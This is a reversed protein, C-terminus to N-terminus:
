IPLTFVCPLCVCARMLIFGGEVDAGKTMEVVERLHITSNCFLCVGLVFYVFVYRAFTSRTVRSHRGSASASESLTLPDSFDEDVEQLLPELRDRYAAADHSLLKANYSSTM